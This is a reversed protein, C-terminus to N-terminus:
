DMERSTHTRQHAPILTPSPTQCPDPVKLPLRIVVSVQLGRAVNRFVLLHWHVSQFGLGDGQAARRFRPRVYGDDGGVRFKGNLPAPRGKRLRGRKRRKPPLTLGNWNRRGRSGGSVFWLNACSRPRRGDAPPPGAESNQPPLSMVLVLMLWRFWASIMPLLVPVMRLPRVPGRRRVGDCAEGPVSPAPLSLPRLLLCCVSSAAAARRLPRVTM